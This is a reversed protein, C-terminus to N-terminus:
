RKSRRHATGYAIVTRHIELNNSLVQTGGDTSALIIITFGQSGTFSNVDTVTIVLCYASLVQARPSATECEDISIYAKPKPLILFWAEYYNKM